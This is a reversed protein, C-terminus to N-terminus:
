QRNNQLAKLVNKVNSTLDIAMHSDTSIIIISNLTVIIIIILNIVIVITIVSVLCRVCKGTQLWDSM